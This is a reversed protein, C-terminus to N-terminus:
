WFHAEDVNALAAIHRTAAFKQSEDLLFLICLSQLDGTLLNLISGEHNVDVHVITQEIGLGIHHLKEIEDGTVRVDGTHGHHDVRGVPLHDHRSQFTHLALADDVRDRQFLALASEDAMGLIHLPETSGNHHHAEILLSLSCGILPLYFYCLTSIMYQHLLHPHIRQVDDEIRVDQRHCSTNGLVVTISQVEDTGCPPDALM